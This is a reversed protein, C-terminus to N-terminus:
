SSPSSPLLSNNLFSAFLTFAREPQWSPVEHGSGRVTVLSVGKYEEVYGGVENGSYWPRWPVQITLNLRNFSYKTSTIPVNGNAILYKITPMSSSPSDLWNYHRCHTWNTPLAHLARQVEPSNMYVQVYSESCPDYNYVSGPPGNRTSAEHCTPAYINYRNTNGIEQYAKNTFSLCKDSTTESAFDCYKDIAEHTEDSMLGHTWFYDYVGKKSTEDDVWSWPNGIAVGKLNIITRPKQKNREFITNALQPVYHGAYSEGTIFFDGSKYQPFRELWNILFVYSDKATFKDGAEDYDSSTKSYSFGVGAPSELFLMNAEKNWAYENLFLTKGNCNVRFPGLEQMAGYGLSSCGPGGNLWLVLPKTSSNYPSEVFYYFLARGAKPDVTVYGSYQDFNVGRPQGPLARIKDAKKFGEQAKDCINTRQIAGCIRRYLWVRIASTILNKITPLITSPRDIRNYDRCHTWNTPLAHIALQVEPNNMYAHISYGSSPDYNYVAIGKLNIITRPKQKNHFLITDALQPGYRGVYSEGTIFFDRSKYQPFRELWNILFVYADNATFKDRAQDYDSSTNSYSFGVGATSELFLVNAVKNWAYKNVFLTRGNSNVRFPGLEDMAGYGLSSCGPGSYQDFNVGNPQGPLARIKDAKRLGEEEEKIIIDKREVDFNDVLLLLFEVLTHTMDIYKPISHVMLLMAPEINMINDVSENFFLWDYFLALKVNAEVHSKRCSKLLWGIIAWRPVIDSQITDNTPHHACCMFRVLDVIVTERSPESLFKRTFWMQHRKQQGLKVHTLFFRLYSEMEPTIRLLFYRSSTRICYLQSIDTFEPTKFQSPNMVLDKWIARFEPVHFLNQLLWVVDRGIKLCLHFEERVIKVCLDIELRKLTGLKENNPSRCHDALLRLYVYLASSLVLPEEELIDNWKDLFFSALEFCLWLNGDSFDGEVIQRLLSVLLGDFGVGLVHVMEKTVWILQNKVSVVLKPYLQHVIKVLLNVFFAYGDSVIAHLHKIHTKAFHPECLIGYLIARNLELYEDPNPITLSFPPRLKPELSKFAQRLSLEIPNEAEHSVGVSNIASRPPVFSLLICSAPSSISSSSTFTLITSASAGRMMLVVDNPIGLDSVYQFTRTQKGDGYVTLPEKRLAKKVEEYHCPRYTPFPKIKFFFRINPVSLLHLDEHVCVM